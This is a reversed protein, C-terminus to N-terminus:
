RTRAPPSTGNRATGRASSSPVTWFDEGLPGAAHPYVNGFAHLRGQINAIVFLENFVIKMEGERIDSAEAVKIFDLPVDPVSCATRAGRRMPSGSNRIKVSINRSAAQDSGRESDGLRRHHKDATVARDRTPPRNARRDPEREPTLRALRETLWSM